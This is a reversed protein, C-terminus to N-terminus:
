KGAGGKGRRTLAILEDDSLSKFNNITVPAEIPKDDSTNDVREKMGHNASLILKTIMPNYDGSLGREILRQRQVTDLIDLADSFGKYKKSWLHVTDRHVNLHLALGEKTPVKAIVRREYTDTAGFGKQYNYFEDRAGNIYEYTKKIIAPSYKTPRGQSGYVQIEEQPVEDQVNDFPSVSTTIEQM